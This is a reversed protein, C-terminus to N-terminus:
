RRTTVYVVTTYPFRFRESRGAALAAVEALVTEREHEPLAAVFSVSAARGVLADADMEEVHPFSRLELATFLDTTRFGERWEEAHQAPTDDRHRDMIEEFARQLPDRLDRRNWVLALGRGPRLVRHIEALAEEARFWHFAQAVVVADVSADALPIAEATGDLAEVEPAVEALKARMGALPEVAVVRAGTPVLLRALKGTGAGLDLVSSGRAIGLREVLFSVAAPPFSPRTREYVDAVSDFAAASAHVRPRRM